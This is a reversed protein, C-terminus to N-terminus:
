SPYSLGIASRSRETTSVACVTLMGLALFLPICIGVFLLTRGLVIFFDADFTKLLTVYNTLGVFWYHRFHYLNQNTFSIYVNYLIPYLSILGVGAIMPTLYALTLRYSIRHMDGLM